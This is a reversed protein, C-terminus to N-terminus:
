RADERKPSAAVRGQAYARLAKRILAERSVAEGKGITNDLLETQQRNLKLVVRRKSM